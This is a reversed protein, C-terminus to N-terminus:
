HVSNLPQSITRLWDSNNPSSENRIIMNSLPTVYMGVMKPLFRGSGTAIRYFWRLLLWLQELKENKPAIKISKPWTKFKHLRIKRNTKFYSTKTCCVGVRSFLLRREGSFFWGLVTRCRQVTISINIERVRDYILVVGNGSRAVIFTAASTCQLNGGEAAEYIFLCPRVYSIFLITQNICPRYVVRSLPCYIEFTAGICGSSNVVRLLPIQFHSRKSKKGRETWLSESWFTYIERYSANPISHKSSLGQPPM